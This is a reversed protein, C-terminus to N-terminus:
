ITAGSISRFMYMSSKAAEFLSSLLRIVIYPCRVVMIFVMWKGIDLHGMDM